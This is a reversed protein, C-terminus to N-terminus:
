STLIYLDELRMLHPIAIFLYFNCVLVLCFNQLQFTYYLLHFDVLIWCCMQDSLIFFWPFTFKLIPWNLNGTQPFLYFSYSFYVSGWLSPSVMLQVFVHMIPVGSASPLPSLDCLYSSSIIVEYKRFMICFTLWCIWSAQHIGFLIFDWHVGCRLVYCDLQCFVIVFLSEEFCALFFFRLVLAWCCSWCSVQWAFYHFDFPM